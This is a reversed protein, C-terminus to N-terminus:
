YSCFKSESAAVMKFIEYFECSNRLHWLGKRLLTASRLVAVKNFLLSQCPHNGTFKAYNRLVSKKCFLERRSGRYRQLKMCDCLKSSRTDHHELCHRELM